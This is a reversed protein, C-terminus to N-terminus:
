VADSFFASIQPIIDSGVDELVYHGADPYRTVAANPLRRIWEQLFADDFVFDKEGWFIRTPTEVFQHLGEDTALLPAYAPDAESLPIDQVFRLTAIRNNWNNYPATYAKRVAPTMPKMVAWRTALASFANFGRVMVAGIPTNRIWWLTKPLGQDKPNRFAGTNLIV